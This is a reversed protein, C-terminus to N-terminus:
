DRLAKAIVDRGKPLAVAQLIRGLAHRVDHAVDVVGLEDLSAALILGWRQMNLQRALTQCDVDPQIEGLERARELEKRTANIPRVILSPILMKASHAGFLARSIAEAYTPEGAIEEMVAQDTKLIADLGPQPELELIRDEIDDRIEIVASFILEDKGGYINYLTGKAVGAQEAM